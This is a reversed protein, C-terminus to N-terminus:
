LRHLEKFIQHSHTTIAVPSGTNQNESAMQLPPPFWHDPREGQWHSQEPQPRPTLTPYTHNRSNQVQIQNRLLLSVWVGAATRIELWPGNTQLVILHCSSLHKSLNNGM